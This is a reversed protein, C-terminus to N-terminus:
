FVLHFLWSVAMVTLTISGVLVAVLVGIMGFVFLTDGRSAKQREAPTQQLHRRLLAVNRQNAKWYVDFVDGAFPISGVIWDIATNLGMRAMTVRPVGYRHSAHLIYLSIISSLTDGFGPLLGLIADLGFRIKTGPIQFMSDLWDSLLQLEGDVEDVANTSTKSTSNQRTWPIRSRAVPISSPSTNM